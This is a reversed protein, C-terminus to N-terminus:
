KCHLTHYDRVMVESHVVMDELAVEAQYVDEVVLEALAVEAHKM